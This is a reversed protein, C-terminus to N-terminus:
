SLVDSPSRTDSHGAALELALKKALAVAEPPAIVAAEPAFGFTWRVVEAMDSVRFTLLARGDPLLEVHQDRQWRRSSVSGALSASVEVTIEHLPGGTKIFGVADDNAYADPVPRIKNITGARVPTDEIMDLAFVRWAHRGTDYGVLFYRGSRVVIHAPEVLRERSVGDRGRYAFRVMCRGAESHM